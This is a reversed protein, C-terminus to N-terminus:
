TSRSWALWVPLDRMLRPNPTGYQDECRSAFEEGEVHGTTVVGIATDDASVIPSGSMGGRIPEATKYVWLPGYDNIYHVRCGFWRQDLSLLWAEGDNDMSPDYRQGPAAGIKLPKTVSEVFEYYVDAHDSLEQTDPTGLVALDAVPNVFLCEAWVYPAEGLESLLSKYTVESLDHEGGCPPITPLCHAATVVYRQSYIQDWKVVPVEIVFGRGDGVTIVADTTPKGNIEKTTNM